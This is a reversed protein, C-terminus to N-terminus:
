RAIHAPLPPRTTPSHQAAFKSAYLHQKVRVRDGLCKATAKRDPLRTYGNILALNYAQDTWVAGSFRRKKVAQCAVGYRGAASDNEGTLVHRIRWRFRVSTEADAAGELHGSGKFAHSHEVIYHNAGIQAMRM